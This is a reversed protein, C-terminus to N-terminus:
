FWYEGDSGARDLLQQLAVRDEDRFLEITVSFSPLMERGFMLNAFHLSGFAVIVLARGEMDGLHHENNWGAHEPIETLKM